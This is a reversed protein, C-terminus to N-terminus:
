EYTDEWNWDDNLRYGLNQDWVHYDNIFNYNIEGTYPNVLEGQRYGEGGTGYLRITTLGSNFRGRSPLDGLPIELCPNDLTPIVRDYLSAFDFNPVVLKKVFQLREVRYKILKKEM